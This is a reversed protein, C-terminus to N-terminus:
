EGRLLSAAETPSLDPTKALHEILRGTVEAAALSSFRREPCWIEPKPRGDRTPGISSVPFPRRTKPDGGGVSIVGRATAPSTVTGASEVHDTFRAHYCGSSEIWADCSWGPSSRDTEMTVRWPGTALVRDESDALVVLLQQDGNSPESLCHCIAVQGPNGSAVQGQGPGIPGLAFGKPGEVTVSSPPKGRFWLELRIAGDVGAAGLGAIVNFPLVASEGGDRDRCTFKAHGDDFAGNGSAVVILEGRGVTSSLAREFLSCGDHSGANSGLSLNIVVPRNLQRAKHRIYNVADLIAARDGNTKVGILHWASTPEVQEAIVRAVQTGHAHADAGMFIRDETEYVSDSPYETGYGNRTENPSIGAQDTQDWIALYRGGSRGNGSVVSDYPDFCREVLGVIPPGSRPQPSEVSAPEDLVNHFRLKEIGAVLMEQSGEEIYAVSSLQTLRELDDLAVMATWIDEFQSFLGVFPEPSLGNPDYREVLVRIYVHSGQESLLRKGRHWALHLGADLKPEYRLPETTVSTRSASAWWVAVSAPVLAILLTLQKARVALSM